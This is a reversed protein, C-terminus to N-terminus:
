RGSKRGVRQKHGCVECTMMIDPTVGQHCEPDAKKKAPRRVEDIDDLEEGEFMLRFDVGKVLEDKFPKILQPSVYLGDKKNYLLVFRLAGDFRAEYGHQALLKVQALIKDITGPAVGAKEEIWQNDVIGRPKVMRTPMKTGNRHVQVDLPDTLWKVEITNNQPKKGGEDNQAM